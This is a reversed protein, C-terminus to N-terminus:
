APDRSGRAVDRGPIRTARGDRVVLARPSSLDRLSQLAHETKQAQYLSIGIVLGIAAVLALAELLDGLLIYVVGTAILLLLMPERVVELAIDFLTRPRASPLENPGDAALQRAAQDATLGHAFTIVDETRRLPSASPM